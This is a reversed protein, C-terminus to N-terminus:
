RQLLGSARELILTIMHDVARAPDRSHTGSLRQALITNVSLARHGLRHALWYIASTEMEFNTIPYGNIRHRHLTELALDVSPTVRLTRGQPGYFGACTLTIGRMYQPPFRDFDMGQAPVYYAWEPLADIGAPPAGYYRGLIDLGVAGASIVLDDARLDPHLAGSTGARVFALQTHDKLVTRSPLDINVLADLENLVIDINDTGIGTSVVSIRSSGVYGTHTIFERKQKRVEVRDFRDSFRSVRDPDGVLIVLPAVEGPHLNLHYVSGDPNLILEAANM